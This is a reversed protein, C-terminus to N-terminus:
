DVTYPKNQNLHQLLLDLPIGNDECIRNLTKDEPMACHSCGGIHFSKLVAKAGEAAQVTQAFTMNGSYKVADAVLSAM